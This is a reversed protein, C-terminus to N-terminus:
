HMSEAPTQAVSELQVPIRAVTEWSNAERQIEVKFLYRGAGRVPLGVARVQSRMRDNETLDVPFEQTYVEAGNPAVLIIRGKSEELEAPNERIWLSVVEYQVPIAINANPDPLPGLVNLQELVEFLSINNTERDTASRNCVVSWVHNIM